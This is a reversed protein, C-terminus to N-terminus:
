LLLFILFKKVKIQLLLKSSLEYEEQLKKYEDGVQKMSNKKEKLENQIHKIKM